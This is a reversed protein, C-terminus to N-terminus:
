ARKAHQDQRFGVITEAVAAIAKRQGEDAREWLRVVNADETPDQMLLEAPECGYVTSLRELLDQNYPVLGREIRSLTTHNITGAEAAAAALSLGSYERWERLYTKRRGEVM